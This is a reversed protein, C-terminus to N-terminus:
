QRSRRRLGAGPLQAGRSLNLFNGHSCSFGTLTTSLSLAEAPLSPRMKYHLAWFCHFISNQSRAVTCKGVATAPPFAASESASSLFSCRKAASYSSAHAPPNTATGFKLLTLADAVTKCLSCEWWWVHRRNSNSHEYKKGWAFSIRIGLIRPYVAQNRSGRWNCSDLITYIM